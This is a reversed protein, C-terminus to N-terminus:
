YGLWEIATKRDEWCEPCYVLNHHYHKFTRGCMYCQPELGMPILDEYPVRLQCYVDPIVINVYKELPRISVFDGFTYYADLTTRFHHHEGGKHSRFILTGKPLWYTGKKNTEVIREKEAADM